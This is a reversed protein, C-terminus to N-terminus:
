RDTKSPKGREPKGHKVTKIPPKIPLDKELAMSPQGAPENQQAPQTVIAIAHKTVKWTGNQFELRADGQLATHLVPAHVLSEFDRIKEPLPQTTFLVRIIEPDHRVHEVFERFEASPRHRDHTAHSVLLFSQAVAMPYQAADLVRYFHDNYGAHHAVQVVHLPSLAKLLKPYYPKKGEPKFDVCGADGSVLIGQEEASFRMVYSLQNSPTISKLALSYLAVEAYVGIPLRDWHKRVLGKSPGLLM